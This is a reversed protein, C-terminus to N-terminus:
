DEDAELYFNNPTLTLEAGCTECESYYYLSDPDPNLTWIPNFVHMCNPCEIDEEIDEVIFQERELDTLIENM